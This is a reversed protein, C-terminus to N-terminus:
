FCSPAIFIHHRSLNFVPTPLLGVRYSEMKWLREVDDQTHTWICELRYIDDALVLTYTVFNHLLTVCKHLWCAVLKLIFSWRNFYTWYNQFMWAFSYLGWKSFVSDWWHSYTLKPYIFFFSIVVTVPCQRSNKGWMCFLGIGTVWNVTAPVLKM